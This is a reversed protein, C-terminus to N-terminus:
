ERSKASEFFAELSDALKILIPIDKEDLEDYDAYYIKNLYPKKYGIFVRAGSYLTSGIPLLCDTYFYTNSGIEIDEKLMTFDFDVSSINYIELLQNRETNSINFYFTHSEVDIGNSEQLIMKLELPIVLKNESEFREIQSYACGDKKRFNTFKSFNM